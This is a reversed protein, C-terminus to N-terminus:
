IAGMLGLLQFRATEEANQAQVLNIEADFLNQQVTLVDLATALGANRQMVIAEYAKQSATKQLQNPGISRRASQISSWLQEIRENLNDHLERSELMARSQALAAERVRSKNEGGSLLPVSLNLLLEAATDRRITESQGEAARLVGQLALKPKGFSKAVKINHHAEEARTQTARLQANNKQAIAKIEQLSSPLAAPLAPMLGPAESGVLKKYNSESAELNARGQELRSKVTALRAELLAEDTRTNEGANVLAKVTRQQEKLLEVNQSYIEILQRDRIVNLHAIATEQTVVSEIFDYNAKATEIGVQAIDKQANLRGGQYLPLSLNLSAARRLRSDSDSRNVVNFDTESQTAGVISELDLRFRSQANAQVLGEKAEQIKLDEIALRPSREIARSLSRDLSVPSNELFSSPPTVAPTYVSHGYQADQQHAQVNPAYDQVPTNEYPRQYTAQRALSPSIPTSIAQTQPVGHAQPVNHLTVADDLQHNFGPRSPSGQLPPRAPGYSQTEVSYDRYYQPASSLGRLAPATKNQAQMVYPSRPSAQAPYTPYYPTYQTSNVPSYGTQMFSSNSGDALGCSALGLGLSSLVLTFLHPHPSLTGM